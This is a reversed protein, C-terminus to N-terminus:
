RKIKNSRFYEHAVRNFESLLDFVSSRGKNFVEINVGYIENDLVDVQTRLTKYIKENFDPQTTFETYRGGNSNIKNTLYSIHKEFLINPLNKLGEKLRSCNNVHRNDLNNELYARSKKIKDRVDPFVDEM